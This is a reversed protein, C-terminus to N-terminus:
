VWVSAVLNSDGVGFALTRGDPSITVASTYWTFAGPGPPKVTLQIPPKAARERSVLAIGLAVAILSAVGAIAWALRRGRDIRRAVPVAVGTQSGSETIGQLQLK